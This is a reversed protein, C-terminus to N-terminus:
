GGMNEEFIPSHRWQGEICLWLDTVETCVIAETPPYFHIFSSFFFFCACCFKIQILSVLYSFSAIFFDSKEPWFNEIMCNDLLIHQPFSSVLTKMTLEQVDSLVWNRHISVNIASCIHVKSELCILCTHLIRAHKVSQLGLNPIISNKPRKFGLLLGSWIM